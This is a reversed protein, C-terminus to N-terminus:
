SRIPRLDYIRSMYTLEEQAEGLTRIVRVRWGNALLKAQMHVQDDSCVADGTKCEWAFPIGNYAGTFDPWGSPLTSRRNMPPRIFVIDNRDLLAAVQEQLQKEARESWRLNDEHRTRVGLRKRDAPDMKNVVNQPLVTKM